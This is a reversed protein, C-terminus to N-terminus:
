GAIRDLWEALLAREAPSLGSPPEAALAARLSVAAAARGDREGPGGDRPDDQVTVAALVAERTRSSLDGGDDGNAILFLVVGVGAAQIMQAATGVPVRLRGARAVAGVLGLLIAYAEDVAPTTRPTGYMLAYIAPNTLGFEVHVDWGHRLDEVPDGSAAMARKSALYEEFGRAAVADFLGQKDGFHHYLTPAGVGAAACVARTSVPEGGSEAILRAAARLIRDRGDTDKQASM